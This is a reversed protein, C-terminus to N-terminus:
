HILGEFNQSVDKGIQRLRSFDGDLNAEETHKGQLKLRSFDGLIWKLISSPDSQYNTDIRSAV